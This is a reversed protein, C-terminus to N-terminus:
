PTGRSLLLAAYLASYCALWQDADYLSRLRSQAAEARGSAAAPHDLVTSLAAALAAVSGPAVLLGQEPGIVDGVGGVDTAVVPVGAAIAELLSIPTGETRSSLVFLDFARMVRGAQAVPGCWAVRSDLGLEAALGRLRAQERGTGVMALVVDRRPLAALARLALDPGKEASLRGVWGLVLGEQELGLERRAAARDAIRYRPAWCNPILHCRDAPVGSRVLDEQLPRSVAVVADFHRLAWRQIWEYGRNKWSGGTFGHATAIVPIGIRRAAFGGLVDCLYGHTHVLDIRAQRLAEHLGATARRYGRGALPCRVLTAGAALAETALASDPASPDRVEILTVRAGLRVQGAVLMAVVSELGGFEAPAVVHAISRGAQTLSPGAAAKM